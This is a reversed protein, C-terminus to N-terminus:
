SFHVIKLGNYELPISNYVLKYEKTVLGKTGIYRSYLATLAILSIIVFLSIFIKKKM